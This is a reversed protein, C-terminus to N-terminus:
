PSGFFDFIEATITPVCRYPDRYKFGPAPFNSEPNVTICVTLKGTRCDTHVSTEFGATYALVSAATLLPEAATGPAALSKLSGSSRYDEPRRVTTSVTIDAAAPLNGSLVAVPCVDLHICHDASITALATLLSTLTHVYLEACFNLIPPASGADSPSFRLETHLFLPSKEVNRVLIETIRFIDCLGKGHRPSMLARLATPFVRLALITEPLLSPPEPDSEGALLLIERLIRETTRSHDLSAPSMLVRFQGIEEALFVITFFRSGDNYKECFVYRFLSPAASFIEFPVTNRDFPLPERCYERFRIRDGSRLSLLFRSGMAEYDPFEPFIWEAGHAKWLCADGDFILYPLDHIM